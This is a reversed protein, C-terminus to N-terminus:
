EIEQLANSHLVYMGYEMPICCVTSLKLALNFGFPFLRLWNFITPPSIGFLVLIIFM